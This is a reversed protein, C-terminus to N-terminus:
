VGDNLYKGNVHHIPCGSLKYYRSPASIYDRDLASKITNDISEKQKVKIRQFDSIPLKDPNYEDNNALFVWNTKPPYVSTSFQGYLLNCPKNDDTLQCIMWSFMDNSDPREHFLYALDQFSSNNTRNTPTESELNITKMDIFDEVEDGNEDVTIGLAISEM